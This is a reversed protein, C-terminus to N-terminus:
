VQLLFWYCCSPPLWQFSSIRWNKWLHYPIDTTQSTHFDISKSSLSTLTCLYQIKWQMKSSNISKKSFKYGICVVHQRFSSLHLKYVLHIRFKNSTKNFLENPHSLSLSRLWICLLLQRKQLCSRRIKATVIKYNLVTTHKNKSNYINTDPLIKSYGM